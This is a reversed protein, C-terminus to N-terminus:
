RIQFQLIEGLPAVTQATFLVIVRYGTKGCAAGFADHPSPDSLRHPHTAAQVALPKQWRAANRREFAALEVMESGAKRANTGYGDPSSPSSGLRAYGAAMLVQAGRHRPGDLLLKIEEIGEDTFALVGDDDIAGYVCSATMPSSVSPGNM